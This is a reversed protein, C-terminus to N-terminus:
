HMSGCPRLMTASREFTPHERVISGSTKIDTNWFGRWDYTRFDLLDVYLEM